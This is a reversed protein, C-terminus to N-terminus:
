AIEEILYDQNREVVDILFDVREDKSMHVWRYDLIAEFIEVGSTKGLNLIETIKQENCFEIVENLTKLKTRMLANAARKSLGLDLVSVDFDAEDYPICVNRKSYVSKLAESLKAGNAMKDVIIDMVDINRQTM